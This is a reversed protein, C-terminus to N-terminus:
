LVRPDRAYMQQSTPQSKWTRPPAVAFPRPSRDCIPRRGTVYAEWAVVCLHGVVATLGIVADAHVIGRTARQFVLGSRRRPAGRMGRTGVYLV